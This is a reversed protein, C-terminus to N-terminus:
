YVLACVRALTRCGGRSAMLVDFANGEGRRQRCFHCISGFLCVSVSLGFCYEAFECLMKAMIRVIIAM